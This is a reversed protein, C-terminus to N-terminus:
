KEDDQIVYKNWLMKKRRNEIKSKTTPYISAIYLERKNTLKVIVCINEILMKYYELSSQEQNYYILDPTNIIESVHDMTYNMSDVSIYEEAHKAIHVYLDLSQIIAKDQYKQLNYEKITQNDIYGLIKQIRGKGM